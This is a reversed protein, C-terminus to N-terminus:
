PVAQVNPAWLLAVERCELVRPCEPATTSPAESPLGAVRCLDGCSLMPEDRYELCALFPAADVRIGQNPEVQVARDDWLEVMHLDKANTVPLERGLHIRLWALVPPVQEPICARATFIRVDRGEALWRKVRELM